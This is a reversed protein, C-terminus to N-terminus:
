VVIARQNKKPSTPSAAPQPGGKSRQMLQAKFREILVHEPDASKRQRLLRERAERRKRKSAKEPSISAGNVAAKHM